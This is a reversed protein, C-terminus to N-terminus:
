LLNSFVLLHYIMQAMEQRQIAVRPQVTLASSDLIGLQYCFAMDKRAWREIKPYDSFQALIDRVASDDLESNLGCLRAARAVMAGAEQRTITGHPNFRDKSVGAVIGYGYASGIYASYWKGGPVDKFATTEKKPLGLAQVVITAFEARTMNAAPAFKGAGKGVVIERSALAEIAALNPSASIDSFTAAPATVPRATIDQNKGPLGGGTTLSGGSLDVMRADSMRYLSSRGSRARQVAALAYLGQETAMLNSSFRTKTHSFGSGRRTFTLLEDVATKGGKTFRPDDLSIGLECLAVIVQACSEANVAGDQSFGGSGNQKKSLCTLGKEVARSVAPQERYKALAQLAMATIDVESAASKGQLSWGGDSNQAKVIYDVYLQRAAQTKAGSAQPMPYNRSDLALLAWVPGNIGQWITKEYDGLPQTLDYGAVNRADKGLAALALIVRSYETYKKDSLIGGCGQVYSEVAAYYNPYYDSPVQSDSRALGLVTWEGGISGVQPSKVTNALYQATDLATENVASDSVAALAQIPLLSVVMLLALLLAAMRTKKQRKM